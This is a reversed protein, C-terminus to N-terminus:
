RTIQMMKKTLGNKGVATLQLEGADKLKLKFPLKKSKGPEVEFRKYAALADGAYLKVEGVDTMAGNNTVTVFVEAPAGAKAADPTELSYSFDAALRKTATFAGSVGEEPGNFGVRDKYRDGPAAWPSVGGVMVKFEGPELVRDMNRDLLSLQYSTLNFTVTKKEGTKIHVREFGKLEMIPTDVTSLMDSTYIQAVEDGDRAGINEIDVSVSVKGDAAKEPTIKLNGYRFRTYSLGYGFRYMPRFDMDIYNYKRGSPKFNYNLPLQGTFLPFTVPLRGGPNYDGFLVEAAATGGEEGPYFTQIIGKLNETVWRFTYPRGSVVIMVTPTGTRFVAKVLEMQNRPLELDARDHDEGSTENSIDGVVVIAVDSAKAAKAADSVGMPQTPFKPDYGDSYRVKVGPGLLKGVADLISIRQGERQKNSYDGLQPVKANVGIVAISKINKSFPLIGDNKLLVLSQRAAELALARHEPTDWGEVNELNMVPPPNEFLGLQFKARLVRSVAFDIDEMPLQKTQAAVVVDPRGYDYGCNCSVGAKLALRAADVYDAAVHHKDYLHEISGCDSVIFGEFGWEDRLIDKLLHVSSVAPEDFWTSYASMLSGAHAEEIAARFSPLFLERMVRESYGVDNSDRGGWPAGHAAFHKPTALLGHSQFGTIWAVGIRSVLYTDEGYSEEMRGWRPDRAVDMLPSWAQQANALVTEAGIADGVKEVLKPNWTSALAISHPFMTAGTGPQVGHVAEVRNLFPIKLRKNDPVGGKEILQEMKEAVTMRSLLDRVRADVTQSPDLYLPKQEEAGCIMALAALFLFCAVACTIKKM